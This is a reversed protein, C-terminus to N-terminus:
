TGSARPDVSSLYCDRLRLFFSSRSVYTAFLGDRCPTDPAARAARTVGVVALGFATVTLPAMNLKATGNSPTVRTVGHILARLTDATILMLHPRAFDVAGGLSM